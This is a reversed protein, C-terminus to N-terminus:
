VLVQLNRLRWGWGYRVSILGCVLPAIFAGLNAGVYFLTFASDRRADGEPYLQGVLNVINPKCLGNGCVFHNCTSYLFNAHTRCFAHYQRNCDAYGGLCIAMRYGLFKETLWAGTLSTVYM